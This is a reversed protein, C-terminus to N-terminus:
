KSVYFLFIFLFLFFSCFLMQKKGIGLIVEICRATFRGYYKQFYKYRSEFFIRKFKSSKTAAHWIHRIQSQPIIWAEWDLDDIRRCLDCEEFYLFFREDFGGIKEFIERRVMLATGPVVKVKHPKQLDRDRMWFKQAVPNNPWLRHLLSHAAIATVPTLIESGQDPYVEGDMTLLTPAVVGAKPHRLLFNVLESIAGTELETDPNLFFFYDGSAKHAGLNNAPGFGINAGSSIYKVKPFSKSIKIKLHSAPNNDVVLVEIPQKKNSRFLSRLCAMLEAEEKCTVLIISVLPARKLVKKMQAKEERDEL